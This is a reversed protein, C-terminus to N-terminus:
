CMHSLVPCLHKGYARDVPERLPSGKQIAFSDLSTVIQEKMMTLLCLSANKYALDLVSELYSVQQMLGYQQRTLM